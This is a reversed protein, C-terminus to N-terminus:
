YSYIQEYGRRADVAEQLTDFYGSYLYKGSQAKYRAYYKGNPKHFYVGKHGTRNKKSLKTNFNNQRRTVYRLNTINNDLRDRNIHDVEHQLPIAGLFVEAVISHVHRNSVKNHKSLRAMAYGHITKPCVLPLETFKSLIMGQSSVLYGPYEIHSAWVGYNSM